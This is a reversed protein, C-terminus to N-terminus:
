FPLSCGGIKWCEKKIRSCSGVQGAHEETGDETGPFSSNLFEPHIRHFLNSCRNISFASFLPYSFINVAEKGIRKAIVM